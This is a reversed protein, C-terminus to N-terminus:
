KSQKGTHTTDTHKKAIILRDTHYFPSSRRSGACGHLLRKHQQRTTTDIDIILAYRTCFVFYRGRVYCFRSRIARYGAGAVAFVRSIRVVCSSLAHPSQGRADSILSRNHRLYLIALQPNRQHVYAHLITRYSVFVRRRQRRM